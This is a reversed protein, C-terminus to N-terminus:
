SIIRVGMICIDDIQDSPSGTVPDPANIWELIHREILNKQEEANLSHIGLLIEQFRKASFKKYYPGGLQDILGDSTLYVMDGKELKISKRKFTAKKFHKSIPTSDPKLAYLTHSDNKLILDAQSKQLFDNDNKKVIYCPTHSGAFELTFINNKKDLEDQFITGIGIDMGDRIESDDNDQQLANILNTRLVKLIKEPQTIRERKVIENLLSIGLMSMFAGPVGHGTCDAVAFLKIGDIQTIWYFDGSVIDRPWFLIFNENFCNNIIDNNPLVAKQILSAYFLSDTIQTHAKEIITKQQSIEQYAIEINEAQTKLEEKQQNIESTREEVKKELDQNINTIISQIKLIQEKELLEKELQNEVVKRNLQGFRNALALTFLMVQGFSGIKLSNALLHTTLTEQTPKIIVYLIFLCLFFFFITNAWLYYGALYHGKKFTKIAFTLLFIFAIIHITHVFPTFNWSFGLNILVILSLPVIYFVQFWKFFNHWGPFRKEPDLFYRSFGIYSFTCFLALYNGTFRTIYDLGTLAYGVREFTIFYLAMSFFALFFYLFSKDRFLIFQFLIYFALSSLVGVLAALIIWSRLYYSMEREAPKLVIDLHPKFEQHIRTDLKIYFTMPTYAPLKIPFVTPNEPFCSESGRVYEGNKATFLTENETFWFIENNQKPNVQLHWDVNKPLENITTFRIWYYNVGKSLVTDKTFFLDFGPSSVDNITLVGDKDPLIEISNNVSYKLLLSDKLVLPVKALASHWISLFLLSLIIQRLIYKGKHHAVTKIKYL